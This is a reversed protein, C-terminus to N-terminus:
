ARPASDLLTRIQRTHADLHAIGMDVVQEVNIPGSVPHKFVAQELGEDDCSDIYRILWQQSEDWKARLEGLDVSGRPNMTESPVKVRIRGLVFMVVKLMLKNKLSRKFVRMESKDPLGMLVEREAVVMHEVIEIVSWRNEDPRASLRAPDISSLEELLVNRRTEFTQLKESLEM